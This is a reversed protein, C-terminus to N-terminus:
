IARIQLQGNYVFLRYYAGAEDKLLIGGATGGVNPTGTATLTDASINASSTVAGSLSGGASPLYALAPIDAAVLARFSPAGSTGDPAAFVRNATATTAGTGGNAVPLTGSVHSTLSAKGWAPATSTGQSILVSGSSVANLKGVASSSSAYLLDGTTYSTQGTGGKSATITPLDSTVLSRFTPAGSAGNPSAFVLNQAQSALSATLTGAATVPSGTVSFIAPLSLGVSTVTGSGGSPTSFAWATGTWQLYGTSLAPIANGLIKNVTVSISTTGSGSVDGSLSINQNGAIPTYGLATTIDSSALELPSLVPLGM